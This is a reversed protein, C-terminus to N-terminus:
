RIPAGGAPVGGALALQDDCVTDVLLSDHTAVAVAVGASRAADVVGAVAAWTSRDQGVTPEDLILALPGHVVAAALMLRRQEGASLHYPNARALHGIGLAELVGDAREAARTGGRGTARASALVEDRVCRTVVGHEPVQAVWALRRALDRSRWRWPESGRRTALEAPAQVSGSTPRALGALVTALTSKGAGSPGTVALARGAALSADVGDLAMTATRRRGALRSRLLMRVQTATVVSAPGPDEWTGVLEPDVPLPKPPALGPLWVGSEALYGGRDAVVEDPDGDAIVEGDSGLVVLRNVFQLWPELRHEVLVVTTGLSADVVARRVQTAAEPDLMATPEDLLLLRADLALAGAVALRQSEGGSLAATPHGEGYPFGSAALAKRVRPWIEERPVQRNELGFAVDRGVTEAVVGAVPDQPLWGAHGPERTVDRGDVLVRGALDGQGSTTLLGALARLLTSKGAGSPGTILVREGPSIHLHLGSLVPTRRRLPRWTLGEVDVRGGGASGDAVGPM